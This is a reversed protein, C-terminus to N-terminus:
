TLISVSYAAFGKDRMPIVAKYADSAFVREVADMDPYEVILLSEGDQTGILTDAVDLQQVVEGGVSAILPMAAALYADAAAQEAPNIRISALVRVVM